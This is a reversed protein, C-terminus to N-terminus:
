VGQTTSNAANEKSRAQAQRILRQGAPDNTATLLQRLFYRTEAPSREDLAQLLTLLHGQLDPPPSTLLSGTIDFVAPLNKFESDRATEVLARLAAIHSLQSPSALWSKIFNIWRSSQQRRLRAAGKEILARLFAPDDRGSAYRHIRELLPEPPDTSLTALLHVGLLRPELHADNLLIDALTIKDTESCNQTTEVLELELQRMVAPHPRYQPLMSLAPAEEGPRYIRDSYFELLDNLKAAFREPQGIHTFLEALQFRLRTLQVAPM